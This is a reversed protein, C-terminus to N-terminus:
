WVYKFSGHPLGNGTRLSLLMTSWQSGCRKKRERKKINLHILTKMARKSHNPEVSKFLLNFIFPSSHFLLRHTSFQQRFHVQQFRQLHAQNREHTATCVPTHRLQVATGWSNKIPSHNLGILMSAVGTFPPM